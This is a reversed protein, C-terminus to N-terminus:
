GYSLIKAKAQARLCLEAAKFAHTQTMAKETRNLSDLILAGFFPYGVQGECPIHKEGDDNVLYLQNGEPNEATINIYKRLEIFGRTGLIISRGDGWSRLGKPTFWDVRYYGSTGNDGTLSAEGFDELGPHEPNAYNAVAAHNVTADTAGTYFLFQESQHSGIDTLIGGYQEKDFFWDPRSAASLRHPDRGARHSLWRPRRM